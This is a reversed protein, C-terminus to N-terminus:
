RVTFRSTQYRAALNYRHGPYTLTVCTVVRGKRWTRRNLELCPSASDIGLLSATGSDPLVARVVHEMEDPMFLGVLYQTATRVSFDQEIFEPVLSPNILRDEIQMPNQEQFHIARLRYLVDSQNMEMRDAQSGDAWITGFELVRSTHTHGASRIEDAIDELTILSAHRPAMAVFTGLGHVRELLGEQTLERLARHVTMRSVGLSDVLENESPLRTGPEWQRDRIRARIEQKIQRYLPLALNRDLYQLRDESM